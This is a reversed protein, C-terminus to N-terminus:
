YKKLIELFTPPSFGGGAGGRRPGQSILSNTHLIILCFTSPSLFLVHFYRYATLWINLTTNCPDVQLMSKGRLVTDHKQAMNCLDVKQAVKSSIKICTVRSSKFRLILELMINTGLFNPVVLNSATVEKYKHNHFQGDKEPKSFKGNAWLCIKNKM